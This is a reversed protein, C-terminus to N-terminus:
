PTTGPPPPTSCLHTLHAATDEPFGFAPIRDRLTTLQASLQEGVEGGYQSTAFALIEVARLFLARAKDEEEGQLHAEAAQALLAGSAVLRGINRGEPDFFLAALKASPTELLTKYPLGTLQTSNEELFHLFEEPQAEERLKLARIVFEVM